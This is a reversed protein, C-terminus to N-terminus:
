RIADTCINAQMWLKEVSFAFDLRSLCHVTGDPEFGGDRLSVNLANYLVSVYLNRPGAFGVDVVCEDLPFDPFYKETTM